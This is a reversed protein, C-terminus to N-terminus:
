ASTRKLCHKTCSNKRRRQWFSRTRHPKLFADRPKPPTVRPQASIENPMVNCVVTVHQGNEALIARPLGDTAATTETAACCSSVRGIRPDHTIWSSTTKTSCRTKKLRLNKKEAMRQARHALFRGAREMLLALPTGRKAIERELRVVDAVDLVPANESSATYPSLANRYAQVLQPLTTKANAPSTSPLTAAPMGLDKECLRAYLQGAKAGTCFM